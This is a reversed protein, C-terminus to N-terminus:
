QSLKAIAAKAVRIVADRSKEGANM